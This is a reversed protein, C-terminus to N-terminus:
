FKKINFKKKLLICPSKSKLVDYNGELNNYYFLWVCNEEWLRQNKLQSWFNEFEITDAQTPAGFFQVSSWNKLSVFDFNQFRWNKEITIKLYINSM